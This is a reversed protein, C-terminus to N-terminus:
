GNNWVEKSINYPFQKCMGRFKCRYCEDAGIDLNRPDEVSFVIGVKRLVNEFIGLDPDKVVEATRGSEKHVAYIGVKRVGDVLEKIDERCCGMKLGFFYVNVQVLWEQPVKGDELIKVFKNSSCTKVDILIERDFVADFRGVVIGRGVRLVFDPEDEHSKANYFV